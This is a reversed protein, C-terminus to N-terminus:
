AAELLFKELMANYLKPKAWFPAHGGEPIIQVGSRWLIAFVLGDFYSNNFFVEDRGQIVALPKDWEAIVAKQDCGLNEETWRNWMINRAAGDTRKVAALLTPDLPLNPGCTYRAYTETDENSFVVKSTFGM